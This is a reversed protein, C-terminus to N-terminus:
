HRRWWLLRGDRRRRRLGRLRWEASVVLLDGGCAGVSGRAQHDCDPDARGGDECEEATGDLAIPLTDLACRRRRLWCRAGRARAQELSAASVRFEIRFAAHASLLSIALVDDAKLEYAAAM